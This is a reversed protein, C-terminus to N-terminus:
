WPVDRLSQEVWRYNGHEDQITTFRHRDYFPKSIHKFRYTTLILINAKVFVLNPTAKLLDWPWACEVTEPHDVDLRGQSHSLLEGVTEDEDKRATTIFDMHQHTITSEYIILRPSCGYEADLPLNGNNSVLFPASFPNSTVVPTQPTVTIRTRLFWYLGVVGAVFSVFVVFGGIWRGKNKKQNALAKAVQRQVTSQSV